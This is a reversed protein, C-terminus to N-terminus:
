VQNSQVQQSSTASLDQNPEPVEQNGPELLKLFLKLM